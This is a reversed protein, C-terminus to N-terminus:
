GRWARLPSAASSTADTQFPNNPSM